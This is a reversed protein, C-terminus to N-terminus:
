QLQSLLNLRLWRLRKSQNLRSVLRLKPKLGRLRLQNIEIAAQNKAEAIQKRAISPDLQGGATTVGAQSAKQQISQLELMAAKLASLGSLDVAPRLPNRLLSQVGNVGSMVSDLARNIASIGSSDFTAGFKIQPSYKPNRSIEAIGRDVGSLDLQVPLRITGIINQSPM